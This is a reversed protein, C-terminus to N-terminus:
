GRRAMRALVVAVYILFMTALTAPLGPRGSTWAPGGLPPGVILGISYFVVFAAHGPGPGRGSVAASIPSGSRTSGAVLGGLLM